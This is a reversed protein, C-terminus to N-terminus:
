KVSFFDDGHLSRGESMTLISGLPSPPRDCFTDDHLEEKQFPNDPIDEFLLMDTMSVHLGFKDKEIWIGQIQMIPLALMGESVKQIPAKKAATCAKNMSYMQMDQACRLIATGDPTVIPKFMGMLDKEQLNTGFWDQSNKKLTLLVQKELERLWARVNPPCTLRCGKQNGYTRIVGCKEPDDYEGLQIKQLAECHISFSQEGHHNQVPNEFRLLTDWGIDTYLLVPM